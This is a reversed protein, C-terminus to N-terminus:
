CFHREWREKFDNENNEIIKKIESLEFAKFGNNESM